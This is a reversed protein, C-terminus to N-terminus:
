EIIRCSIEFEYLFILILNQYHPKLERRNQYYNETYYKEKVYIITQCNIMVKDSCGYSTLITSIFNYRYFM